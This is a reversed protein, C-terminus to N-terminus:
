GRPPQLSQSGGGRGFGGDETATKIDHCRKCLAQWNGSDWFLRMDGRHPIIHDVVNAAVTEGREGHAACLPHALLFGARAKQWRSGYGRAAASPRAGHVRVRVGNKGSLRIASAPKHLPPRIPM